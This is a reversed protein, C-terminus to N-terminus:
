GPTRDSGTPEVTLTLGDLHTVRVREGPQIDRSASVANWDEAAVRVIGGRATVGSAIAVGEQGLISGPGQAPPLDRMKLVKAVVVGFFVGILGAVPLIVGPSVQVGGSRDYLFWGGLM